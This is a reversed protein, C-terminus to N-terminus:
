LSINWPLLTEWNDSVKVQPAEEFVRRLYDNPNVGNANATEILSYMGCSSEAGKPSGLFLWNKRGLVFPRIAREAANNDPTLWPSGLYRVLNEWENLTYHIAKGLLVSPPVQQGRNLLWTKFSHLVPEVQVKRNELFEAESLKKDERLRSEITYLQKIFKMGEQASGSKKSVKGAEHFKRRAHAWCGVLTVTDNGRLATTYAEYGDVQLYGTFGKLLDKIHESGRTERYSYLFAPKEPPGGRTLWMYSKQTDKREPEGLVQVPTEDMNIVPGSRIHEHILGILPRIKEYAAQQWNSMNQRSIHIGIREFRKEQRYYPLHDIFKNTIIFSLLSPTAISKPIISAPVDAIRVAPNEEDGSGECSKCAYKPRVIREVWMKPPIVQLKESTEEGIRTMMHGCGCQKEDEPIDIIVNERPISEDIPKRGQPSKRSHSRVTTAQEVAQEASACPESDFLVQQATDDSEKESKRGFKQLLLLKYQEELSAYRTEWSRVSQEAKEEVSRIYEQVEAPLEAVDM